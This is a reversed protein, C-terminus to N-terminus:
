KKTNNKWIRKKVKHQNTDKVVEWRVYFRDFVANIKEDKNFLKIFEILHFICLNMQWKEYSNNIVNFCELIRYIEQKNKRKENPCRSLYFLIIKNLM